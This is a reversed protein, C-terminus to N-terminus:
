WRRLIAHRRHRLPSPGTLFVRVNLTESTPPGHNRLPQGMISNFFLFQQRFVNALLHLDSSGSPFISIWSLSPSWAGGLHFSFMKWGSERKLPLSNATKPYTYTYNNIVMQSAFSANFVCSLGSKPIIIGCLDLRSPSGLPAKLWLRSFNPPICDLPNRLNGSIEGMDLNRDPEGEWLKIILPQFYSVRGSKGHGFFPGHTMVFHAADLVGWGKADRYSTKMATAASLSDVM